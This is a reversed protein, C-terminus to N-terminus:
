RHLIAVVISPSFAHGTPHPPQLGIYMNELICTWSRSRLDRTNDRLVLANCRGTSHQATSYQVTSYQVHHTPLLDSTTAHQATNNHRYVTSDTCVTMFHCTIIRRLDYCGHHM